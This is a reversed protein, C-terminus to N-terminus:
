NQACRAHLDVVLQGPHARVQLVVQLDVVLEPAPLRDGQVPLDTKCAAHEDPGAPQQALVTEAGSSRRANVTSLGTCRAVTWM